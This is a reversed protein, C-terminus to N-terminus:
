VRNSHVAGCRMTANARGVRCEAGFLRLSNEAYGPRMGTDECATPHSRPAERLERIYLGSEGVCLLGVHM